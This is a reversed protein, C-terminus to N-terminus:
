VAYSASTGLKCCHGAPVDRPKQLGRAEGIPM